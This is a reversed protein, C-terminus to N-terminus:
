PPQDILVIVGSVVGTMVVMMDQAAQYQMNPNQSADGKDGLSGYSLM